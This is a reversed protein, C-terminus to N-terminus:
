HHMGSDADRHAPPHSPTSVTQLEVLASNVHMTLEELTGTNQIIIDMPETDLDHESPDESPIIGPRVIRVRLVKTSSPCMDCIRTYERKYRWDAVVFRVGDSEAIEAIVTDSYIDPNEARMQLALQLIVDRPTRATPFAPVPHKLPENKAATHFDNLPIGTRTAADQKLADAFAVRRFRHNRVLIAAVADKGSGAWGSLLLITPNRTM